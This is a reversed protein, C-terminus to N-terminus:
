NSGIEIIVPPFLGGRLLKSRYLWPPQEDIVVSDQPQITLGTARV